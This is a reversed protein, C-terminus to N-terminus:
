YQRKLHSAPRPARPIRYTQADRMFDKGMADKGLWRRVIGMPTVVFFFILGLILRTNLWGLVEALKMWAKHIPRLMEPYVTAPGVLVIACVMAWWRPDRGGFVVPLLGITAFIAGVMLGFSRLQKKDM